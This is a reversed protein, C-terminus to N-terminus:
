SQFCDLVGLIVIDMSNVRRDPFIDDKKIGILDLDWKERKTKIKGLKVECSRLVCVHVYMFM